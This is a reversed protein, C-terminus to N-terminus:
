LEGYQDVREWEAQWSPDVTAAKVPPQTFFGPSHAVVLLLFAAAFGVRSRPCVRKAIKKM